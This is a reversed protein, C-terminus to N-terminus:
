YWATDLVLSRVLIGPRNLQIAQATLRDRLDSLSGLRRTRAKRDEEEWRDCLYWGVVYLGYRCQQNDELYPVLQEEMATLVESHWSGKSELIVTITDVNGYPDSRIADVYIDTRQGPRGFRDGRRIVVERNAVVGRTRLDQRLYRAIKDTLAAEDKPSFPNESWLEPASRLEGQLEGQFRELSEVVVDLLQAPSGVLRLEPDRPLQVIVEPDPPHWSEERVKIGARLATDRLWPLTPLDSALRKLAIVAEPTGRDRLAAIVANRWTRLEDEPSPSHVGAYHPDPYPFKEVTWVFFDALEDERLSTVFRSRDNVMRYAVSLILERGFEERDRILPWLMPWGQEPIARLLAQGAVFAKSSSVSEDQTSNVWAAALTLAGEFGHTLLEELLSQRANPSIDTGQVLEMLSSALRDDWIPRLRPLSPLGDYQGSEQRLLEMTASTTPGQAREYATQLLLAGPSEADSHSSGLGVVVPVWQEWADAPLAALRDPSEVQLIQLAHFAAIAGWTHGQPSYWAAAESVQTQVFRTALDLAVRRTSADLTNWAALVREDQWGGRLVDRGTEILLQVMRVWTGAPDQETSSLISEARAEISPPPEAAPRTARSTLMTHHERLQSAEQSDLSIPGLFRRAIGEIRPHDKHEYLVAVHDPDSPQVVISLLESWVAPQAVPASLTQRVLWGFDESLILPPRSLALRYGLDQPRSAKSVLASVLKHRKEADSGMASALQGGRDDDVLDEHRQLRDFVEDAFLARVEDRDLQNWAARLIAREVERRSDNGAHRLTPIWGLGPVVLDSTIAAALGVLFGSLSGYYNSRKPLGLAGFLEDPTLHAPWLARLASGRLDDEEDEPIDSEILSRLRGKVESSAVSAVARAADIRLRIPEGANLALDALEPGLQEVGCVEAIEIAVERAREPISGDSLYRRLQAPLGEYALREYRLRSGFEPRPTVGAEARSMITQLVVERQLDSQFGVDGQLLIEPETQVVVRMAEESLAALRAATHHLQPILYRTPDEPHCILARIQAPGLNRTAAWRAALFEGYTQHAWGMRGPSRGSFLGTSVAERVAAETVEFRLDQAIEIGGALSAVTVDTSPIQAGGGGMWVAAKNGFITAAAIREAVVLRAEATLQGARGSERREPDVERCLHLCGEAYIAGQTSPFGGRDAFSDLLFRLTTPKAALPQIRQENVKALFSAPDLGSERAAVEVDIRRLPMIEYTAVRDGGFLERLRYELTSPWDATRCAIRLTLRDIPLLSLEHPLRSVLVRVDFLAEDLSDLILILQGNGAKWSRVKKSEFVSSRLDSMDEYQRLDVLKSGSQGEQAPFHRRLEASKGMGPEGLLILCPVSEIQEFPVADAVFYKAYESRPDVLYGGEVDAYEGGLPCWFREWPYVSPRAPASLTTSTSTPSM